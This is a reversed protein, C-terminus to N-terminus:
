KKYRRLFYGITPSALLLGLIDTPLGTSPIKKPAPATHKTYGTNQNKTIITSIPTPTPVRTPSIKVANSKTNLRTFGKKLDIKGTVVAFFVVVVVLGLILSILKNTGEM